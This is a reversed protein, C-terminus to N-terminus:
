NTKHKKLHGDKILQYVMDKTYTKADEANMHSWEPLTHKSMFEYDEFHYGPCEIAKIFSNWVKDRPMMRKTHKNWGEEAKHRVFIVKGGRGKFKKVLVSLTKIERQVTNEVKKSYDPVGPIVKDWEDTIEKQYAPNNTLRPFMILNRYEDNYGINVLKFKDGKIRDDDISIRNILSKLDLDNYSKAESASLMVLNRKLPKSLEFGLRQSYTRDYYHKVWQKTVNRRFSSDFFALPTVGIVLTGNFKTNNIVDEIFPQPPKGNGTLNIPKIGQTDEWAHTNFNYGTRSAGLLIIDESTAKEVKAREQSWLNRDDELYAIYYDTQTRWYLEWITISAITLVLAFTFSQKLKM